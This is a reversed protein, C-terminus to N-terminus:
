AVVEPKLGSLAHLRARTMGGRGHRGSLTADLESTAEAPSIQGECAARFVEVIRCIHGAVPMIRLAAVGALQLAPLYELLCRMKGSFVVPGDIRFLADGESELETGEPRAQCVEECELNSRGALRASLCRVSFALPVYGCVVLEVGVPVRCLRRVDRVGLDIPAVVRSAGLECFLHATEANCVHLSPGAIWRDLGAALRLFAPSNIEVSDAFEVFREFGPSKRSPTVLVPSSANVLKGAARIERAAQLLEGYHSRKECGLEGLYVEDASSRAVERYLDRLGQPGLSGSAPGITIKM